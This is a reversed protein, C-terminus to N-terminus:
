QPPINQNMRFLNTPDLKRKVQVLRNWVEPTYAEKVRDPTEEGLFNVYVGRAYPQLSAHLDRAWAICKVDELPDTWRTHINLNFPVERHTYATATEAVRSPAGEMHPVFVECEKSPMRAAFDAIHEVAPDPLATMWHSKWYNRAGPTVLPDFGRQWEVFPNIGIAEGVSPTIERLPRILAAGKEESGLYVFPVVVIMQGHVEPPLFPLPPAHRVVMWITMEDPMTRVYDRHFRMYAPLDAFRKVILGSYVSQGIEAAKFVFRSVVGFNGGGGRIAWFLDPNERASTRVEEGDATVVEASLLNDVTLGFKRSIWGFGGGLTLGGVGTESIIGAPVAMGYHQTERDVDLLLAGGEVEVSHTQPDVTVRRMPALDIMLGNEAVATGASNHGGGKISLLLNQERAMTVARRIDATNRCRAIVAPRRNFFGNWIQRAEDYGSQEPLLVEGQFGNRLASLADPNVNKM